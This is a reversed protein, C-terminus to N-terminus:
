KKILKRTQYSGFKNEIFVFYINSELNSIDFSHGKNFEGVFEKILKGSIDYLKVKRTSINIKFSSTVPIPYLKLDELLDGSSEVSLTSDLDGELSINFSANNNYTVALNGNSEEQTTDNLTVEIILDSNAGILINSYSQSMTYNLGTLEISDIFTGTTGANNSLTIQLVISGDDDSYVFSKVYEDPTLTSNINPSGVPNDVGYYEMSKMATNGESKSAVYIANGSVIPQFGHREHNLGNRTTWTNTSPNYSEVVGVPGNTTNNFTTEGGITFIENNFVVVGLGARPYPINQSVDLTSWTSTSFNYVDVEYVQPEFLGGPGGTLRGGLAYLNNDIVAAQFHDRARPADTLVTWTGTSPDFEDFYSVYGGSHGVTNGGVLYFKNDHMALGTSGRKRANPIEMGQIWQESAPNYMYIYDANQEPNPTNTKFAGIVWILGEYTIAQFHNFEVPATGGLSWTNTAYDYVDLQTSSERGGFFIFKDGIQTAGLEHRGVYNEDINKVAWTQGYSLSNLSITFIFAIIRTYISLYHKKM